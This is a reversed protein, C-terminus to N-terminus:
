FGDRFSTHELVVRVSLCGLQKEYYIHPILSACLGGCHLASIVRYHYRIQTLDESLLLTGSYSWLSWM